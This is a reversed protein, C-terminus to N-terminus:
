NFIGLIMPYFRAWVYLCRYWPFPEFFMNNSVERLGGFFKLHIRSCTLSLSALFIRRRGERIEKKALIEEGSSELGGFSVSRLTVRRRAEGEITRSVERTRAGKEKM